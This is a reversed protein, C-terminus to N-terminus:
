KYSSSCIIFANVTKGNKYRFKEFIMYYVIQLLEPSAMVKQSAAALQINHWQEEYDIDIDSTRKRFLSIDFRPGGFM